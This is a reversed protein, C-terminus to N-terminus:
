VLQLWDEYAAEDTVLQLTGDSSLRFRRGTEVAVTTFVLLLEDRIPFLLDESPSKTVVSSGLFAKLCDARTKTGDTSGDWFFSLAIETWLALHAPRRYSKVGQWHVLLGASSVGVPTM